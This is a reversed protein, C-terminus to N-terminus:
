LFTTAVVSGNLSLSDFGLHKFQFALDSPLVKHFGLLCLPPLHFASRRNGIAKELGLLDRSHFGSKKSYTIFAFFCISLWLGCCLDLEFIIPFWSQNLILEASNIRVLSM